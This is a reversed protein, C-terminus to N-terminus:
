ASKSRDPRACANGSVCRPAGCCGATDASADERRRTRWFGTRVPTSGRGLGRWLLAAAGSGVGAPPLLLVLPQLWKNEITQEKCGPSRSIFACSTNLLLMRFISIRSLSCSRRRSHRRSPSSPVTAAQRQIAAMRNHHPLCKQLHYFNQLIGPLSELRGSKLPQSFFNIRTNASFIQDM